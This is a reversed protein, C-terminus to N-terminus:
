RAPITENWQSLYYAARERIRLDSRDGALRVLTQRGEDGFSRMDSVTLTELALRRSEPNPSELGQVLYQRGDAGLVRLAQSARYVQDLNGEVLAQGWQEATRGHYRRLKPSALAGPAAPRSGEALPTSVEAQSAEEKPIALRPPRSLDCGLLAGGFMAATLLLKRRM